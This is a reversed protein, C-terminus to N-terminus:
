NRSICIYYIYIYIRMYALLLEEDKKKARRRKESKSVVELLQVWGIAHPCSEHLREKNMLSVPDITHLTM